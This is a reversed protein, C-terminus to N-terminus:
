VGINRLCRNDREEPFLFLWRIDPLTSIEMPGKYRLTETTALYIYINDCVVNQWGARITVISKRVTVTQQLRLETSCVCVSGLQASSNDDATCSVM